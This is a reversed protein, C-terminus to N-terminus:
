GIVLWSQCRTLWTRPMRSTIRTAPAANTTKVRGDPEDGPAVGEGVRMATADGLPLLRGVPERAGLADALGPADGETDASGLGLSDMSGLALGLRLGLGSSEGEGDGDSDGEGDGDGVIPGVAGVTEMRKRSTPNSVSAAVVLVAREIVNL